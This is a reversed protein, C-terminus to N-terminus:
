ESTSALSVKRRAAPLFRAFGHGVRRAGHAKQKGLAMARRSDDLYKLRRAALNKRVVPRDDLKCTFNDWHVSIVIRQVQRVCSDSFITTSIPAPNRMAESSSAPDSSRLRAADLGLPVKKSSPVAYAHMERSSQPM